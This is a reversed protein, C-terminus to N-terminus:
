AAPMARIAAVQDATAGTAGAVQADNLGLAFLQRVQAVDFGGGQPAAQTAAQAPAPAAAPTVPVTPPTPAQAPAAWQQPAPATPATGAAPGAPAGGFGEPQVQGGTMDIGAGQQPRQYRYEFVKSANLKPNKENPKDSTYAAYFMGGVRIDTDGASKIATILAQRQDGWWKIYIARQGNDEPTESLTTQIVVRVQQQPNGDDWELPKGTDYDRAQTVGADVIEGQVAYSITKGGAFASPVGDANSMLDEIASM